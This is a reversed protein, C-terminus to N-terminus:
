PSLSPRFLPRPLRRASANRMHVLCSMAPRPSEIQVVSLIVGAAAPLPRKHERQDPDARRSRSGMDTVIEGGIQNAPQNLCEAKGFERHASPVHGFREAICRRHKQNRRACPRHVRPHQRQDGAQQHDNRLSTRREGSAVGQQEEPPDARAEPEAQHVTRDIQGCPARVLRGAPYREAYGELRTEKRQDCNPERPQPFAVSNTAHE